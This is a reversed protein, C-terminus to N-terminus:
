PSTVRTNETKILTDNVYQSSEEYHMITRMDNIFQQLYSPKLLYIQRKKNNKEVEYEYNTIATVPNLLSGKNDPNSITFNSNVVKGAPLILRNQSDKVETTIYHKISNLNEGYKQESYRYIDRDSLPWEDRINIIGGSIIVVWDLEPNGYLEEAVTEPRSGEKIQYKIFITAVNYLDNRLKVRRFFNKVRVYDSSSNKLNKDFVQYELDPLERFYGM